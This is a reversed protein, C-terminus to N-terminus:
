PSLTWSLAGMYRKSGFDVIDRITESSPKPNATGCSRPLHPTKSTLQRHQNNNLARFHLTKPIAALASMNEARTSRTAAHPIALPPHGFHLSIGFRALLKFINRITPFSTGDPHQSIHRLPVAFSAYTASNEPHNLATLVGLVHDRLIWTLPGPTGIGTFTGNHSVMAATTM